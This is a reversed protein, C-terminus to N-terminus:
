NQCIVLSGYDISVLGLKYKTQISIWCRIGKVDAVHVSILRGLCSSKWTSRHILYKVLFCINGASPNLGAVKPILIEPRPMTGDKGVNGCNEGFEKACHQPLRCGGGALAPASGSTNM